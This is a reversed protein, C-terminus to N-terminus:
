AEWTQHRTITSPWNSATPGLAKAVYAAADARALPGDISSPSGSLLGIRISLPVRRGRAPLQEVEPRRLPSAGGRARHKEGDPRPLDRVGRRGPPGHRCRRKLVLEIERAIHMVAADGAEHGLRDNLAKVRDVDIMLLSFRSPRGARALRQRIEQFFARRNPMGTLPDTLAARRLDDSLRRSRDALWVLPGLVLPSLILCMVPCCTMVERLTAVEVEMAQFVVRILATALVTFLLCLGFTCFVVRSGIAV